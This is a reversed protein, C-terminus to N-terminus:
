VMKARRMMQTIQTSSGGYKFGHGAYEKLTSIEEERKERVRGLRLQDERRKVSWHTYNGEHLHMCIYIYLTPIRSSSPHIFPYITYLYIGHHQTLRRAVGSIHLCDSCVEDIFYRDHSVVM